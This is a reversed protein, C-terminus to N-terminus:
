GSARAAQSEAARGVLVRLVNPHGPLDRSGAGYGIRDVLMEPM